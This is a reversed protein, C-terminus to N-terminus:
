NQAQEQERAAEQAQTEQKMKKWERIESSILVGIVMICAISALILYILLATQM